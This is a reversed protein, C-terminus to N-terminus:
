TKFESEKTKHAISPSPTAYQHSSAEVLTGLTQNRSMAEQQSNNLKNTKQESLHRETWEPKGEGLFRFKMLYSKIRLRGLKATTYRPIQAQIQFRFRRRTIITIIIILLNIIMTVMMVQKGGKFHFTFEKM